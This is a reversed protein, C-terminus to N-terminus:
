GVGCLWDVIRSTLVAARLERHKAPSKTVADHAHGCLTVIAWSRERLEPRVRRGWLHDHHLVAGRVCRHDPEILHYQCQKGDLLDVERYAAALAPALRQGRAGVARIPQRRRKAWPEKPEKPEKFRPVVQREAM